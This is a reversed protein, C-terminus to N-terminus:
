NGIGIDRQWFFYGMSIHGGLNVNLVRPSDKDVAPGDVHWYCRVLPLRGEMSPLKYQAGGSTVSRGMVNMMKMEGWSLKDDRNTDAARMFDDVDPVNPWDSKEWKNAGVHKLWILEAAPDDLPACPVAGGDINSQAWECVEGCFEYLYSCPVKDYETNDEDSFDWDAHWDVDPNQFEDFTAEDGSQGEWQWTSDRNGEQGATPDAPCIFTNPDDIYDPAASQALDEEYDSDGNADLHNADKRPDGLYTLWPPYYKGGGQSIQYMMLAQHLNRLNSQCATVRASWRAKAIVPMLLGALVAIVAIVVLLEILTFAARRGKVYRM